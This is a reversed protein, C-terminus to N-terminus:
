ALGVNKVMVLSLRHQPLSFHRDNDNTTTDTGVWPKTDDEWEQWLWRLRLARGFKDLDSIELGGLDKPRTVTTWNVLCHGRNANEKGKRLFSRKIKDIRKRAWLALPFVTLHNTPMSSLVSSVPTLHGTRNLWKGKWSPLRQAIREILPQVNMKWLLRTHLQLGLYRCPFSERVGNFPELVHELDVDECHIPHISSKELNIHLGSFQGFAQLIAIIAQM